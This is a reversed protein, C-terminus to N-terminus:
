ISNLIIIFIVQFIFKGQSVRLGFLGDLNVELSNKEFFELAKEYRKMVSIISQISEDPNKLFNHIECNHICLYFCFFLFFFAQKM